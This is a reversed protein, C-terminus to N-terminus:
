RDLVHTLLFERTRRSADLGGWGHGAGAVLMAQVEGGRCPSWHRLEVGRATTTRPATSCGASRTFIGLTSLAPRPALGLATIFRPRAFGITGDSKGHVALVDPTSIGSGCRAELSASVVVAAALRGPRSCVYRYTRMGGSSYGVFATRGPDVPGQEAVDALVADLFALDDVGMERPTGCCAGADWSSDVGAPYALTAGRARLAALDTEAAVGDPTGGEQHLVVVLASRDGPALGLAPQLLYSRSRGDVELTRTREAPSWTRQEDPATPRGTCAGVLLAVGLLLALPRLRRARSATPFLSV